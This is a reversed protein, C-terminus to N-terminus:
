YYLSEQWWNGRSAAGPDDEGGDKKFNIGSSQTNQPHSYVDRGGYYISSSFHCPHAREEQQYISSVDRSPMSDNEGESSRSMTDPVGNKIGWIPDASDPKKEALESRLPERGVVKSSPPFISSFIGNLSSSPSPEKTGFLDSTFSSSSSSEGVQKRGEM